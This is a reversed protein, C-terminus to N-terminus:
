LPLKGRGCATAYDDGIAECPEARGVGQKPSKEALVISLQKLRTVGLPSHSGAICAAPSANGPSIGLIERLARINKSAGVTLLSGDPSSAVEFWISNSM